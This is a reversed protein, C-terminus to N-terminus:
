AVSASLWNISFGFTTMALPIAFLLYVAKVTCCHEGNSENYLFLTFVLFITYVILYAFFESWLM